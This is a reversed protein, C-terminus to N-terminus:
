RNAHNQLYDYAAKSRRYLTAVCGVAMAALALLMAYNGSGFLNELTTLLCAGTLLAMRHQKAMPGAFNVPAGLSAALTRVYATSVALLAVCWGLAPAWDPAPVSYGAAVLLLADSLRDPMDNFLEGAATKKGGEIAVLGDFLNCLLRGQIGVTAALPLWWAMKGSQGPLALLCVSGLVAFGISALSIQNPTIRQRSLLRAIRQTIALERVRLYRRNSLDTM